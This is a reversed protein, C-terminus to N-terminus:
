KRDIKFTHSLDSNYLNTQTKRKLRFLPSSGNFNEKAMYNSGAVRAPGQGSIKKSALKLTTINSKSDARRKKVEGYEDFTVSEM